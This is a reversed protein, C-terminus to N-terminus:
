QLFRRLACVTETVRNSVVVEEDQLEIRDSFSPYVVREVASPVLACGAALLASYLRLPPRAADRVVALLEERESVVSADAPEMAVVPALVERVTRAVRHYAVPLSRYDDM